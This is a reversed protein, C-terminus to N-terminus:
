VALFQNANIPIRSVFDKDEPTISATDSIKEPTIIDQAGPQNLTSPFTPIPIGLIPRCVLIPAKLDTKM